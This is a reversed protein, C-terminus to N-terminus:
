TCFLQRLLFNINQLLARQKRHTASCFVIIKRHLKAPHNLLQRVSHKTHSVIKCELNNNMKTINIHSLILYIYTLQHVGCHRELDKRIYPEDHQKGVGYLRSISFSPCFGVFCAGTLLVFSDFENRCGTTRVVDQPLSGFLIFIQFSFNQDRIYGLEKGVQRALLRLCKRFVYKSIAGNTSYIIFQL